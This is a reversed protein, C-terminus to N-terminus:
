EITYSLVIIIDEIETGLDGSAGSLSLDFPFESSAVAKSAYYLDTSDGFLALAKIETNITINGSITESSKIYVEVDSISIVKEKLFHSFHKQIFALTCQYTSGSAPNLFLHLKNAFEAKMSFISQLGLGEGTLEDMLINLNGELNSEAEVKLSGDELATYNIQMIVDSITDYDFQRFTSPLELKWKTIAGAGEFPLYREDNFNFEFMGRDNQASSCAISEGGSLDFIFRSDDVGICPYGELLDTNKRYRAQELYLKCNVNTNPGTVAPISISLSKIRRMYHGPYDIDYLLEPIEFHCTGNERLEILATPNLMALSVNKTLEFQRKNKDMFSIEMRRLDTQLKEGALLGKKLSDWYAYGIFNSSSENTEFRYAKEAKKALEIAMQYSQFYVDSLQGSMWSYLEENTFKDKLFEFYQLSHEMQLNHNFLERESMAKRIEAAIIQKEIQEIEHEASQVQFEWEMERRKHGAMIGAKGAQHNQITALISFVSGAGSAANALQFGGQEVNGCLPGIHIQPIKSVVGAIGSFGQGITQYAVAKEMHRLQNQEENIVRKEILDEYYQIRQEIIKQNNKLSDIQADSEDISLEKLQTIASQLKLEHGARLLSLSEADRKELASLFSQGLAKVENTIEVAKQYMSRFRYNPMPAYLDNLAEGLSLGNALARAILAPDIPPEFLALQREVGKINMCHRIKFLRDAVTDWYSLLKDNKPIGFYLAKFAKEVFFGVGITTGSGGGDTDNKWIMDIVEVLTNSFPDLNTAIEDYNQADPNHERTMVPKAGLIRAALIYLQTAENVSEMSDRAFLQDGWAILNDLYKMIVNKMYAMPRATAIMHPNFPDNRWKAILSKYSESIEPNYTLPNTIDEYDIFPKLKWYKKAGDLIDTSFPDFIYHYWKQAEEFRKNKSLKDAIMMPIHFFLEWNYVAYADNTKFSIDEIPYPSLVNGTVLYNPGVIEGNDYVYENKFHNEYHISQRLLSDGAQPALLGDVGKKSMIKLFHDAYPHYFSTFKYKPRIDEPKVMDILDEKDEPLDVFPDNASSITNSARDIIETSKSKDYFTSKDVLQEIESDVKLLTDSVAVNPIDQSILGGMNFGGSFNPWCPMIMFSRQADQHFVPDQSYYISVSPIAASLWVNFLRSSPYILSHESFKAKYVNISGPIVSRYMLKIDFYKEFNGTNVIEFKNNILSHLCESPVKDHFDKNNIIIPADYNNYFHFSGINKGRRTRQTKNIGLICNHEFYITAMLANGNDWSHAEISYLSKSMLNKIGQNEDDIINGGIEWILPQDSINMPSWKGNKLYTWALRIEYYRAPKEDETYTPKEIAKEVFELWFIYIHNRWEVVSVQKGSIETDIKEWPTWYNFDELRRYFYAQPSAKSRGIVHVNKSAGTKLVSHIPENMIHNGSVACIELNAVDNLGDLYSRYIREVTTDNIDDEKLLKEVEEFCETKDRRLDPELYNEPQIFIKRNAEWLRYQKSWEWEQKNDANFSADTEIGMFVQQVFLQVSLTAQKIRSTMACSSMETDILYHEFLDLTSDFGNDQAILYNSLADRQKERLPKRLKPAVDLWQKNSMTGKILKRFTGAKDQDLDKINLKKIETPSIKLLSVYDMIKKMELLWTEEKKDDATPYTVALESIDECEWGTNISLLEQWVTEDTDPILQLFGFVSLESSFYREGFKIADQLKSWKTYSVYTSPIPFYAPLSTFKLWGNNDFDEHIYDIDALSLTNQKIYVSAKYFIETFWYLYRFYGERTITQESKVFSYSKFWNIAPINLDKAMFHKLFISKVVEYELGFVTSFKQYLAEAFLEKLMTEIAYVMRASPTKLYLNDTTTILTKIANDVDLFDLQNQIFNTGYTNAATVFPNPSYNEIAIIEVAENIINTDSIFLKLLLILNDRILGVKAEDELSEVAYEINRELSPDDGEINAPDGPATESLFYSSNDNFGSFLDSHATVFSTKEALSLSSTGQIISMSNNVLSDNLHIKLEDFNELAKTCGLQESIYNLREQPNSIFSSGGTVLVTKADVPYGFVEPNNDIIAEQEAVTGSFTNSALQTLSNIRDQARNSISEWLIDASDAGTLIYKDRLKKLEDRAETLFLAITEDDLSLKSKEVANNTLLYYLDYISFGSDKIKDLETIFALTDAPLKNQLTSPYYGTLPEMETLELLIFYESIKIRQTKCFSAINYIVSLNSLGVSNMGTKSIILDLDSESIKVASYIHAKEAETITNSTNFNRTGLNIPELITPPNDANSLYVKAYLSKEDVFTTNTDMDRWWSLIEVLSIRTKERIKQIYYSNIIFAEDIGTSFAIIAKDLESITWGLKNQLRCFRHLKDLESGSFPITADEVSCPNLTSYEITKKLPNIFESELLEKLKDFTLKSIELLTTITQLETSTKEPFNVNPFTTNANTITDLEIPVIGFYEAAIDIDTHITDEGDPFDRLMDSRNIKLHSLYVRAEENWLHFPMTWPYAQIKLTEYANTNIHEPYAIADESSKETQYYDLVPDVANELIENIIDIYPVVTNTNQCNLDTYKLDPRKETLVDLITGGSTKIGELFHMIDTLYAAPGFVSQCHKCNCYDMSGFLVELDPPTEDGTFLAHIPSDKIDKNYHAFIMLAQFTLTEAKEYISEAVERNLSASEFVEILSAKGKSTVALSSHLNNIHLQKFSAFRDIEPSVVFLRQITKLSEVFEDETIGSLGTYNYASKNAEIDETRLDFSKNLNYFDNLFPISLDGDIETLRVISATAFRTEINEKIFRAYLEIKDEETEAEIIDPITLHNTSIYSAWYETDKETITLINSFDTKIRSVFGVNGYVIASLDLIEKLEGIKTATLFGELDTWFEEDSGNHNLYTSLFEHTEADILSTHNLLQKFQSTSTAATKTDIFGYLEDIIQDADEIFIKDVLNKNAANVLAQKLVDRDQLLISALNPEFGEKIFAYFVDPDPGAESSLLQAMIWESVENRSSGTENALSAVDKDTLTSLDLSSTKDSLLSNTTTYSPKGFYETETLALNLQEGLLSNLILPSTTLVEQTSSNIVKVMLNIRNDEGETLEHTFAISYNGDSSTTDSGLETETGAVVSYAKVLYGSQENGSSNVVKGFVSRNETGDTIEVKDEITDGIINRTSYEDGVVKLNSNHYLKLYVLPNKEAFFLDEVTFTFEGSADTYINTSNVRNPGSGFIEVMIGEQPDSTALNFIRGNIDDEGTPTTFLDLLVGGAIAEKTIIGVITKILNNQYLLKCFVTPYDRELDDNSSTFTVIGSSNTVLSVSHLKEDSGQENSWVQIEVNPIGVRDQDQITVQISTSM